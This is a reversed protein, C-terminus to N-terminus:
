NEPKYVWPLLENIRSQKLEVIATLTAALYALPDAVNLRLKRHTLRHDGLERGRCLARGLGLHHGIQFALSPLAISDIYRSLTAEDINLHNVVIEAPGRASRDSTGAKITKHSPQLFAYGITMPAYRQLGAWQQGEYHDFSRRSSSTRRECVRRAKIARRADQDDRGVRLNWRYYIREGTSRHEGVMWVKM